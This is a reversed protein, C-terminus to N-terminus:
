PPHSSTFSSAEESFRIYVEDEEVSVVKKGIMLVKGDVISTDVNFGKAAYVLNSILGARGHVPTLNPSKLDILILDASKGEEVSGLRDGVGLARAGNVTALDLCTQAPMTTPDWRHAKHVLACFKMTEFLDLSNNSAAGDTGLSVVMGEQLMEPIPAAGGGGLKMNSVPCHSVKVGERALLAVEARTLWVCHVAVLGPFLFGIDKLYQAEGKGYIKEFYAQEGRTEALHIQMPIGERDALDRAWMLAEDSCTYPTHPGVVPRIRPNSLSKVHRVAEGVSKIWGEKLVPNPLKTKRDLTDFFGQSLFGRLGTEKVAEAVNEVFFYMDLFCTTGSRLMELCGILAGLYCLKGNLKAELPWIRKELWEQLEVDDAYGRFLTMSLHTHTNILGPLLVKGNGDIVEDAEYNLGQGLEM